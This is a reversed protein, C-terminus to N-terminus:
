GLAEVVEDLGLARSGKVLVLDDRKLRGKAFEVLRKKDDFVRVRGNETESAAAKIAEGVVLVCSLNSTRILRGLEQHYEETRDGLERMDGLIAVRKGKCPLTSLTRLAWEMSAPNANYADDIITYGGGARVPRFRGRYPEFAAIGDALAGGKVGMAFALTAAALVNYLNHRGLLRTRTRIKEGKMDCEIEFGELGADSAVRLTFHAPGRMGFTHIACDARRYPALSPDDANLFVAGGGLTAEFLELKERRVGELDALGELHSAAINTILSMNPKVMAALPRMEGRHNTGLEFICYDPSGEVALMTKAAGVWNNYNKESSAVRVHDRLLSVLLEKTTTKGNSGTIAVFAASIQGRKYSALDLLAKNADDVLIVTGRSRAFAEQKTRDCLCGGGSREYAANIFAHGDFNPGKLPIFFEGPGITRSDTSIGSFTTKEVRAACGSVGQIISELSWV